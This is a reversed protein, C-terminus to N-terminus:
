IGPLHFVVVPGGQDELRWAPPVYGFARGVEHRTVSSPYVGSHHVFVHSFFLLLSAEQAKSFPLFSSAFAILFLNIHTALKGGLVM